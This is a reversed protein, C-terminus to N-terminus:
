SATTAGAAPAGAPKTLPACFVLPLRPAPTGPYSLSPAPRIRHACATHVHHRCDPNGCECAKMIGHSQKFCMSCKSHDIADSIVAPRPFAVRSSPLSLDSGIVPVYTGPGFSVGYATKKLKVNFRSAIPDTGATGEVVGGSPVFIGSSSQIANNEGSKYPIRTTSTNPTTEVVGGSPVFIGSSSQIANNEESKYPIGTTSTNPTGEVVGGSPVFVVSSSQITNNEGSKYPLETANTNPTTEVVGGSPVFPTTPMGRRVPSGGFKSGTRSASSPTTSPLAGQEPFAQLRADVGKRGFKGSVWSGRITFRSPTHNTPHPDLVAAVDDDRDHSATGDTVDADTTVSRLTEPTHATEPRGSSKSPRSGRKTTSSAEVIDDINFDHATSSHCQGM